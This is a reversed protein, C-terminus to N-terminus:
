GQGTQMCIREYGASAASSGAPLGTGDDSLPFSPFSGLFASLFGSLFSSLLLPLSSLTFVRQRGTVRVCVHMCARVTYVCWVSLSLSGFLSRILALSLDTCLSRSYSLFHYLSLSM